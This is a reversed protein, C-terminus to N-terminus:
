GRSAIEAAYRREARAFIRAGLSSMWIRNAARQALTVRVPRATWLALSVGFLIAISLIMLIAPGPLVRDGNM